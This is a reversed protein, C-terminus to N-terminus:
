RLKFESSVDVRRGILKESLVNFQPQRLSEGRIRLGHSM